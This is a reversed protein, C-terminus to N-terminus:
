HDLDKLEFDAYQIKSLSMGFRKKAYHLAKKAAGLTTYSIANPSKAHHKLLGDPYVVFYLRM